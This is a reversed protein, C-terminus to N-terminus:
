KEYVRENYIHEFKYMRQSYLVVARNRTKMYIYKVGEGWLFGSLERVLVDLLTTNRHEKDVMGAYVSATECMIVSGVIAIPKEALQALLHPGSIVNHSFRAFGSERSEGPKLFFSSFIEFGKCLTERDDVRILKVDYEYSISELPKEFERALVVSSLEHTWGLTQAIREAEQESRSISSLVLSIPKQTGELIDRVSQLNGNLGLLRNYFPLGKKYNSIEIHTLRREVNCGMSKLGFMEHYLIREWWEQVHAEDRVVDLSIDEKRIYM